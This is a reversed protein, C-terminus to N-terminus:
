FGEAATSFCTSTCLCCPGDTHGGTTPVIFGSITPDQQQLSLLDKASIIQTTNELVPPTKISPM